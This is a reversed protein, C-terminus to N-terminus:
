SRLCLHCIPLQLGLRNQLGTKSIWCVKQSFINWNNALMKFISPNMYVNQPVVSTTWHNLSQEELASAKLEIGPWPALLGCAMHSPLFISFFFSNFNKFNPALRSFSSFIATRAWCEQGAVSCQFVTNELKGTVMSRATININGAQSQWCKLKYSQDNLFM